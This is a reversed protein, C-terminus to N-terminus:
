PNLCECAIQGARDFSYLPLPSAGPSQPSTTPCPSWNATLYDPCNPSRRRRRTRAPPSSRSSSAYPPLSLWGFPPAWVSITRCTMQKIPGAFPGAERGAAALAYALEYFRLWAHDPIPDRPYDGLIGDLMTSIKELAGPHRTAVAHLVVRDSLCHGAVRWETMHCSPRIM